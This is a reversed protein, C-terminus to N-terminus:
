QISPEPAKLAMEEQRRRRQLDIEDKWMQLQVITSFELIVAIEGADDKSLTYYIYLDEHVNTTSLNM